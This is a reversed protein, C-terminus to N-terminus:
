TAPSGAPEAAGTRPNALTIHPEHRPLWGAWAPFWRLLHFVAYSRLLRLGNWRSPATAEVQKCSHEM